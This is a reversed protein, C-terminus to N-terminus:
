EKWWGPLTGNNKKMLEAELSVVQGGYRNFEEWAIKKARPDKRASAELYRQYAEEFQQTYQAKQKKYKEAEIEKPEQSPTPKGPFAPKEVKKAEPKATGVPAERTEPSNGSERPARDSFKEEVRIVDLVNGKPFSAVGGQWQFKVEGKEEWCKATEVTRGNKLKILYDAAAPSGLSLSLLAALGLSIKKM